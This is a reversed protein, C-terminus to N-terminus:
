ADVNRMTKSTSELWAQMRKGHENEWSSRIQAADCRLAKSPTCYESSSRSCVGRPLTTCRSDLPHRSDTVIPQETKRVLARVGFRGRPVSGAGQWEKTGGLHSVRGWAGRTTMRSMAGSPLTGSCPHVGCDYGRSLYLLGVKTSNTPRKISMSIRSPKGVRVQWAGQELTYQTKRLAIGCRDL